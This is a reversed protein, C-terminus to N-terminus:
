APHGNELYLTTDDVRAQLAKRTRRLMHEPLRHELEDDTCWAWSRLEAQPLVIAASQDSTLVGADYIFLLGEIRNPSPAVWDTVLLRGPQVPLGLEYRIARATAALPSEDAKVVGGPLQWYPKYTPEVLLTRGRDDTFLAGAAIRKKPLGGLYEAREPTMSEFMTEAPMDTGEELNRITIDVTAALRDLRTREDLLRRHHGRLADVPDHQADVVGGITALDLGLERLLLIQQLRLLQEQEYYRYGNAGVDAPSLLGIEDYYRLTRATVGSVRAVQQISWSM